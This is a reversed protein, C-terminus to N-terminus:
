HGTRAHQMDRHHPSDGNPADLSFQGLAAISPRLAPQGTRDM